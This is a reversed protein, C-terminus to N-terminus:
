TAAMRALGVLDCNKLKGVATGSCGELASIEAFADSMECHDVHKV